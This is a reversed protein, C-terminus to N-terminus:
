EWQFREKVNPYDMYEGVENTGQFIKVWIGVITDDAKTVGGNVYHWGAEIQQHHLEVSSTLNKVEEGPKLTAIQITGKVKEIYYSGLKQALEQRKVFLIYRAEIPLTPKFGRNKVAMEGVWKQSASHERDKTSAAGVADKKREVTIEFDGAQAFMPFLALALFLIGQKM